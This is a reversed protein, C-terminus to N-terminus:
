VEIYPNVFEAPIVLQKSVDTEFMTLCLMLIEYQQTNINCCMCVEKMNTRNFLMYTHYSVDKIQYLYSM